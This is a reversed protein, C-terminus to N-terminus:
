QKGWWNRRLEITFSWRSLRHSRWRPRWFLGFEKQEMEAYIERQNQFKVYRRIKEEDLGIMSVCYRRSWFYIGWYPKERTGPSSKLLIIATRRKLIGLPESISVKPPHEGGSTYSGRLRETGDRGGEEM